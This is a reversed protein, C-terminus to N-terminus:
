LSFTARTLSVQVAFITNAMQHRAAHKVTRTLVAVIKAGISELPANTQQGFFYLM